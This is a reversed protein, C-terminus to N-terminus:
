ATASAVRVSENDDKLQLVDKRYPNELTGEGFSAVIRVNTPPAPQRSDPTISRFTIDLGQGTLGTPLSFVILLLAILGQLYRENM